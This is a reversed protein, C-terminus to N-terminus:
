KYINDKLIEYIMKGDITDKQVGNVINKIEGSIIVNQTNNSTTLPAVGAGFRNTTRLSITQNLKQTRVKIEYMERNLGTSATQKLQPTESSKVNNETTLLGGQSFINKISKIGKLIKTTASSVGKLREVLVHNGTKVAEELDIMFLMAESTTLGVYEELVGAARFMTKELAYKGIDPIDISVKKLRKKLEEKMIGARVNNIIEPTLMMSTILDKNIQVQDKVSVTGKAVEETFKEMSTTSPIYGLVTKMDEKTLGAINKGILGIQNLQENSLIAVLKDQDEPSFGSFAAYSEANSILAEFTEKEKGAKAFFERIDDMSKFVSKLKDIKLLGKAFIVGQQKFQGTKIDFYSDVRNRLHDTIMKSFKKADTLSASMLEFPDLDMFSTDLASLEAALDIASEPEQVQDMLKFMGELDIRIRKAYSQMESLEDLGGHFRFITSAKYLKDVDEFIANTQVGAGTANEITKVFYKEVDKVTLGMEIFGNIIEASKDKSLDTITQLKAITIYDSKSFALSTKSIDTYAKQFETIDETNFALRLTQALELSAGTINKVVQDAKLNDGFQSTSLMGLNQITSKIAEDIDGTIEQLKDGFKNIVEITQVTFDFLEETTAGIKGLVISITKGIPGFFELIDLFKGGITKGSKLALFELGVM